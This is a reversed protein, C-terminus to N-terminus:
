DVVDEWIESVGKFVEVGLSVVGDFFKFLEVELILVVEKGDVM